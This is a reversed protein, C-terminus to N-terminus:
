KAGSAAQKIGAPARRATATKAGRPKAKVVKPELAQPELAATISNRPSTNTSSGRAQDRRATTSGSVSAANSALRARGAGVVSQIPQSETQNLKVFVGQTPYFQHLVAADENENLLRYTETVFKFKSKKLSSLSIDPSNVIMQRLESLTVRRRSEIELRAICEKKATFQGEQVVYIFYKRTQIAGQQGTDLPGVQSLEEEVRKDVEAELQRDIAQPAQGLNSEINPQMDLQGVIAAVQPEVVAVGEMSIWSGSDQSILASKPGRMKGAISECRVDVLELDTPRKIEPEDRDTKELRETQDQKSEPVPPAIDRLNSESRYKSRLPQGRTVEGDAPESCATAPRGRPSRFNTTGDQNVQDERLTELQGEVKEVTTDTVPEVSREARTQESDVRIEQTPQREDTEEATDVGCGGEELKEPISNKPSAQRRRRHRSCSFLIMLAFITLLLLLTSVIILSSLPSPIGPTSLISQKSKSSASLNM